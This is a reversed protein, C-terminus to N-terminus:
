GPINRLILFFIYWKTIINIRVTKNWDSKNSKENQQSSNILIIETLEKCNKEHMRSSVFDRGTTVINQM